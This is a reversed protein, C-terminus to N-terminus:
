AGDGSGCFVKIGEILDIIEKPDLKEAEEVLQQDGIALGYDAFGELIKNVAKKKAEERKVTERLRKKYEEDLLAAIRESAWGEDALTQILDNIDM